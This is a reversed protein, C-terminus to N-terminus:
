RLRTPYRRSRRAQVIFLASSPRMTAAAATMLAAMMRRAAAAPQPAVGEGMGVRPRRVAFRGRLAAADGDDDRGDRHEGRCGRQAAIRDRRRETQHERGDAEDGQDAGGVVDPGDLDRWAQQQLREGDAEITALRGASKRTSGISGHHISRASSSSAHRQNTLRVFKMSPMSQIVTASNTGIVM